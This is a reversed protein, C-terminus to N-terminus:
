IKKINFFNIFEPSNVISNGNFGVIPHVALGAINYDKWFDQLMSLEHLNESQVVFSILPTLGIETM